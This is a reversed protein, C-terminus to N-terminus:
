EYFRKLLLKEDLPVSRLVRVIKESAHGNGYPNMLRRFSARFRPSLAKRIARSIDTRRCESDIVNKGHFRGRQRSGINVVPLKFSAAEVIGSSSNGVMATAHRMAGFYGEIGLSRVAQARPHRVIFKRIKEIIRRGSTDANPYTFLLDCRSTRLAALLEDVHQGTREYELTVPHFTVMLFPKQLKLRYKKKLAEFGLPRVRRVNDLAPAGSVRVRWPEEGMQIIRQAYRRTSAFHLHSMKTIAHRIAEDILGETSEGGHIHALPINFPLSATAAAFMEFRDGLLLLLDPRIKRYARAFGAVGKAIAGSIGEPADSPGLMPVRAAIKFGDKEITKVTSGFHPSLHMGGVILRLRLARDAEIRRLIPLYIGYDSRAVTVVAITRM